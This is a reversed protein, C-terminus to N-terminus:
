VNQYTSELYDNVKDLDEGQEKVMEEMEKM